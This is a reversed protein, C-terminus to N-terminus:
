AKVELEIVDTTQNIVQAKHFGGRTALAYALAHCMGCRYEPVSYDNRWVKLTYLTDNL